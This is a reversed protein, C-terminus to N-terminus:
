LTEVYHSGLPEPIETFWSTLMLNCDPTGECADQVAKQTMRLARAVKRVEPFTTMGSEQFKKEVYRYVKEHDYM